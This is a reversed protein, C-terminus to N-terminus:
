RKASIKAVTRVGNPTTDPQEDDSVADAHIMADPEYRPEASWTKGDDTTEYNYLGPKFKGSAADLSVTVRGDGNRNMMFDYVSARKCPKRIVRLEFNSGGDTSHALVFRSRSDGASTDLVGWIENRAPGAGVYRWGADTLGTGLLPVAKWQDDPHVAIVPVASSPEDDDPSAFTDIEGFYVTDVAAPATLKETLNVQSGVSQLDELPQADSLKVSSPATAASRGKGGGAGAACAVLLMGSFIGCKM